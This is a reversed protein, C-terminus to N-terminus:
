GVGHRVRDLQAAENEIRAERPNAVVRPLAINNVPLTATSIDRLCRDVEVNLQSHISVFHGGGVGPYHDALLRALM